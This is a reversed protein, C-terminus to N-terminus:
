ALGQITELGVIGMPTVDVGGLGERLLTFGTPHYLPILAADDILLQNALDFLAIRESRDSTRAANLLEDLEDNWYGTYNDPSSSGFLMEIMSEPDPYDAGWYLSYAPFRREALGNLFDLWPVQVAEIRLGLSQSAVDRISEVFAIDAAYISIPPVQEASGYRSLRLEERASAVDHPPYQNPWQRNFMGPPVIGSATAVAGNYTAEAVFERPFVRQLAKRVHADDLPAVANGLAIFVTAFLSTEILAGYQVGSAPDVILEVIEAPVDEVLDIEGAQFLNIPQSASTGLRMAISEVQARGEWWSDAAVLALSNGPEWSAVSFPGSGNPLVWWDPNARVQQADVISAPASALKMLFTPSHRTLSIAVSRDGVIAIGSLSEAAGSLVDDAGAIDRLYTAGALGDRFGGATQPDLARTLSFQVDEPTVVRGDHFRASERISLTYTLGDSSVDVTAALALEPQLDPDLSVLGRYIQRILFNTPLDRSLAPDLSAPGTTSGALRLGDAAQWRRSQDQRRARASDGAGLTPVLGVFPAKSLTRRSFRKRTDMFLQGIHM